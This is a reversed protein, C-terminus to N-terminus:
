KSRQFEACKVVVVPKGNYSYRQIIPYQDFPLTSCDRARHACAAFM